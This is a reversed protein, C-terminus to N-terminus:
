EKNIGRKQPKLVKQSDKHIQKILSRELAGFNRLHTISGDILARLRSVTDDHLACVENLLDHIHDLIFHQTLDQILHKRTPFHNYFTSRGIDARACIDEINANACGYEAFLHAAASRISELMEAKRRERRTTDLQIKPPKKPSETM